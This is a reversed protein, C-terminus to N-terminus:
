LLRASRGYDADLRQPAKEEVAAEPLETSENEKGTRSPIRVRIPMKSPNAPKAPAGSRPPEAFKTVFAGLPMKGFTSHALVKGQEVSCEVRRSGLLYVGKRLKQCAVPLTAWAADMAVEEEDEPSLSVRPQQLLSPTTPPPPSDFLVHNLDRVAPSTEMPPTGSDPAASARRASQVRAELAQVREAGEASRGEAAAKEAMAAHKAQREAELDRSKALLEAHLDARASLSARLEERLSAVVAAEASAGALAKEAETAREVLAPKEAELRNVRDGLQAATEAQPRVRRLEEQAERLAAERTAHAALLASLQEESAARARLATQLELQLESVQGEAREKEMARVQSWSKLEDAEAHAVALRGRLEVVEAERLVLTGSDVSARAKTADDERSALMSRAQQADLRASALETKVKELEAVTASTAERAACLDAGLAENV